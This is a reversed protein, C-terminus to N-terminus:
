MRVSKLYEINVSQLCRHTLYDSGPVRSVRILDIREHEPWVGIRDGTDNPPIRQARYPVAGNEDSGDRETREPRNASVVRAVPRLALRSAM